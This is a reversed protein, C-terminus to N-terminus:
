LKDVVLLNASRKIVKIRQGTKLEETHETTADLTEMREQVAVQVKGIQGPRITLYVTGEQGIANNLDLTGSSQLKGASEFLFKMLWVTGAGAALAALVAVAPPYNSERIMAWGVLGFMMFFATLGQFSMAKFSLDSDTSVDHGGADGSLDADHGGSDIDGHGMGSIFMLIMRVVFLCGGLIACAIFLKELGTVNSLLFAM